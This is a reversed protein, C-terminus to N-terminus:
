VKKPNHTDTHVLQQFITTTPIVAFFISFDGVREHLKRGNRSLILTYIENSTAKHGNKLVRRM